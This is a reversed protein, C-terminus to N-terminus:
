IAGQLRLDDLQSESIGLAGYVEHNHEGVLPARERPGMREGDVEYLGSAV